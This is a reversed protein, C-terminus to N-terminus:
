YLCCFFDYITWLIELCFQISTCIQPLTCLKKQMTRFFGTAEMITLNLFAKAGLVIGPATWMFLWDLCVYFFPKLWPHSCYCSPGKSSVHWFSLLKHVMRHTLYIPIPLNQYIHYFPLCWQIAFLLEKLGSTSQGTEDVCHLVTTTADHQSSM